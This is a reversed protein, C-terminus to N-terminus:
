RTARYRAWAPSSPGAVAAASVALLRLTAREAGDTVAQGRSSAPRRVSSRWNLKGPPMGLWAAGSVGARDVLAALEAVRQAAGESGHEVIGAPNGGAHHAAALRFGPRKGGRPVRVHGSQQRGGGVYQAHRPYARLVCHRQDQVSARADPQAALSEHWAANVNVRSPFRATRKQLFFLFTREGADAADPNEGPIFM